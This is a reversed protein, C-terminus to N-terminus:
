GYETVTDGSASYDILQEEMEEIKSELEDIKKLM